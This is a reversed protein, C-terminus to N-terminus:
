DTCSVERALNSACNKNLAFDSLLWKNRFDFIHMCMAQLAPPDSGVPLGTLRRASAVKESIKKLSESMDRMDGLALTLALCIM